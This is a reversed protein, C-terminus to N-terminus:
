PVTLVKLFLRFAPYGGEPAQPARLGMLSIQDRVCPEPVTVTDGPGGWPVGSEM